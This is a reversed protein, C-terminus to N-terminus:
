GVVVVRNKGARKASLLARDAATLLDEMTSADWPYTALGGSITVTGKEGGLRSFHQSRLSETFRDVLSLAQQPHRSGPERPGSPDWFVVAFEDGGYRTVIDQERCTKRFLQGVVRLIEDGADHGHLDNFQKFDDVDFLLLTVAFRERAARALISPLQEELYRRNPLGSSIDTLALERWRRQRSWADMLNGILRAFHGLREVDSPTYAGVRKTGVTLCGKIESALEPSASIPVTIVGSTVPDGATAGAGPLSVVVGSAGVTDHIIEALKKLLDTSSGSLQRVADGIALPLECSELSQPAVAATAPSLGIAAELESVEMPWVIYEDVGQNLASRAMPESEPKCCLIIRPEAGAAARFGEIARAIQQPASDIMSVIARVPSKCTEAIGSLLSDARILEWDPHRAAFDDVPSAFGNGGVVVLRNPSSALGSLTRTM